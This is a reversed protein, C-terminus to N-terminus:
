SFPHRINLADRHHGLLDFPKKKLETDNKCKWRMRKLFGLSADVCAFPFGKRIYLMLQTMLIM